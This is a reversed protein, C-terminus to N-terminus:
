STGGNPATPVRYWRLATDHLIMRQEDDGLRALYDRIVGIAEEYTAALTCVPWDSGVMCREPGFAQLVMDLYPELAAPGERRWGDVGGETMLGSLKCAVHEREALARLGRAWVEREERRSRVSTGFVTPKAIHDVLFRGNPVLDVLATAPALHQPRVLLDYALGRDAIARVAALHRPAIAHGVDPMDHLVERMGVLAPHAAFRDLRAALDPADMDVWGVVGVISPDDDALACLWSTEIELRRAQVAITSHVGARDRLPALDAPLFDRRLAAMGPGMWDYQPEDYIWFHQHADVIPRV